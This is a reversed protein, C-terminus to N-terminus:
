TPNGLNRIEVAMDSDIDKSVDDSSTKIGELFSRTKMRSKLSRLKCITKSAQHAEILTLEFRGIALFLELCTSQHRKWECQPIPSVPLGPMMLIM